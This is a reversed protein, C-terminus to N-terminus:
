FGHLAQEMVSKSHDKPLSYVSSRGSTVAATVDCSILQTTFSYNLKYPLLKRYTNGHSRYFKPSCFYLLALTIVEFFLSLGGLINQEVSYHKKQLVELAVKLIYHNFTIIGSLLRYAPKSTPHFCEYNEVTESSM